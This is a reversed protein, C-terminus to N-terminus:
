DREVNDKFTWLTMYLRTGGEVERVGHTYDEDASHIVLSNKVPKYEIGRNPYYIEGGSYDDNLYIVLGNTCSKQDWNDFHPAIGQSERRRRLYMIHSFTYTGGFLGDCISRVEDALAGDFELSSGSYQSEPSNNRKHWDEYSASEALDVLSDLLNEPLFNKILCIEDDLFVAGPHTILEKLM